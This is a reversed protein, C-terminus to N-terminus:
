KKKKFTDDNVFEVVGLRQAIQCINSEDRHRQWFGACCADTSHHCIRFGRFGGYPDAVAKELRELDLTSSKKYICTKCQKKQVRFSM